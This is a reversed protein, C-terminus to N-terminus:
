LNVRLCPSMLGVRFTKRGAVTFSCSGAARSVVTAENWRGTVMYPINMRITSWAVMICELHMM